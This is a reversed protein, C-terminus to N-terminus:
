QNAVNTEGKNKRSKLKFILKDIPYYILGGIVNSIVVNYFDGFPLWAVCPYLVITSTQWRVLYLFLKM